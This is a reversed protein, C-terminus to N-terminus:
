YLPLSIAGLAPLAFIFVGLANAHLLAIKCVGPVREYLHQTMVSYSGGNLIRHSNTSTM